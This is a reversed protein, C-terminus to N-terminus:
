ALSDKYQLFQCAQPFLITASLAPSAETQINREEEARTEAMIDDLESKKLELEKQRDELQEM